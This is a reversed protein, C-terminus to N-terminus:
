KVKLKDFKPLLCEMILILSTNNVMTPLQHMFNHLINTVNCHVFHFKLRTNNLNLKRFYIFM